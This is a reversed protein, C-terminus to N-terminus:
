ASLVCGSMDISTCARECHKERARAREGEREREIERERARARECVGATGMSRTSTLRTVIDSAVVCTCVIFHGSMLPASLSSTTVLHMVRLEPVYSSSYTRRAPCNWLSSLLM